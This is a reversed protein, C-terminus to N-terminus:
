PIWINFAVIAVALVLLLIFYRNTWKTHTLAIFHGILPATNVAIIGYLPAFHQPQLIIFVFACVDIAIFTEYLLQTRINDRNSNNAFHIIGTLALLGTYSLVVVQHITLVSFDAARGFEAINTFHEVFSNIDGTYVNWLILFWYPTAIGLLSAIFNRFNMAMINTTTVIWLVPLFFLAQVWFVSALGIALYAYYIWGPSRKDQYCNFLFTYFIVGCLTVMAMSIDNIFFPAIGVIVLFSCMIMRSYIRILANSSNLQGMMVSAIGLCVITAAQVVSWSGFSAAVWICLTLVATNTAIWRSQALRNQFRKKEIM